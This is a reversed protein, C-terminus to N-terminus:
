TTESPPASAEEQVGPMRRRGMPLSSNVAEGAAKLHPDMAERALFLRMIESTGEFIMNIRCDRMAREIPVAPEGRGRLSQATEYGRGSRIQM